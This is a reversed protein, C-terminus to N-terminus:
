CCCRRLRRRYFLLRSDLDSKSSNRESRRGESSRPSRTVRPALLTLLTAALHRKAAKMYKLVHLISPCTDSIDQPVATGRVSWPIRACNTKGRMFRINQRSVPPILVPFFCRRRYLHILSVRAACQARSSGSHSLKSIRISEEEQRGRSRKRRTKM